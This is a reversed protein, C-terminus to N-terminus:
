PGKLRNRIYLAAEEDGAQEALQLDHELRRRQIRAMVERDPKAKRWARVAPLADTAPVLGKPTWKFDWPPTKSSRDFEVVVYDERKGGHEPLIQREVLRRDTIMDPRALCPPQGPVHLCLGDSKRYVVRAKAPM